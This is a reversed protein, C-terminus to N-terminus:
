QALIRYYRGADLKRFSGTALDGDDLIADAELMVQDAAALDGALHAGIGFRIGYDRTTDWRGGLPTQATWRPVDIYKSWAADTAGSSLDAPYDAQVIYFDQAALEFTRLDSAFARLSAERSMNGLRPLAMMALTSIIAVVVVLEVLSFATRCSGPRAVTHM